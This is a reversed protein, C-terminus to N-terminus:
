RLSWVLKGCVWVNGICLSFHQIRHTGRPLGWARGRGAGCFWTAITFVWQKFSGWAWNGSEHHQLFTLVNQWWVAWSQTETYHSQCLHQELLCASWNCFFFLAAEFWPRYNMQFSSFFNSLLSWKNQLGLKKIQERAPQLPTCLLVTTETQTPLMTTSRCVQLKKRETSLTAGKVWSALLLFFDRKFYSCWLLNQLHSRWSFMHSFHCHAFTKYKYKLVIAFAFARSVPTTSRNLQVAYRYDTRTTAKLFYISRAKVGYSCFDLLGIVKKM